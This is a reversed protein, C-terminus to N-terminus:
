FCPKDTNQNRDTILLEEQPPKILHLLWKNSEKMLAFERNGKDYKGFLPHNTDLVLREYDLIHQRAYWGKVSKEIVSLYKVMELSLYYDPMLGDTSNEVEGDVIIYDEQEDFDYDVIQKCWNEFSVKIELYAYLDAASVVMTNDRNVSMDFIKFM